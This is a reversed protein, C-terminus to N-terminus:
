RYEKKWNCVVLEITLVAFWRQICPHPFWRQFCQSIEMTVVEIYRFFIM